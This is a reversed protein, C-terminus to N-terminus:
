TACGYIDPLYDMAPFGAATEAEEAIMCLRDVARFYVAVLNGILKHAAEYVADVNDHSPLEELLYSALPTHTAASDFPYPIQSFL